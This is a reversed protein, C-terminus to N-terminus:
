SIGCLVENIRDFDIEKKTGLYGRLGDEGTEKYVRMREEDNRKQFGTHIIM